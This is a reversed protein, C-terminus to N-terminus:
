VVKKILVETMRELDEKALIMESLNHRIAQGEDRVKEEISLRQSKEQDLQQKLTNESHIVTELQSQM